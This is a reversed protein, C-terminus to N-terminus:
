SDSCVSGPRDQKMPQRRRAQYRAFGHSSKPRTVALDADYSKVPKIMLPVVSLPEPM